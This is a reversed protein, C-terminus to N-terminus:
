VVKTSYKMKLINARKPKIWYLKYVNDFMDILEITESDYQIGDVQAVGDLVLNNFM